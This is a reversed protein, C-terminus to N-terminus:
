RLSPDKIPRDVIGSDWRNWWDPARVRALMEKRRQQEVATTDYYDSVPKWLGWLCGVFFAFKGFRLLVAGAGGAFLGPEPTNLIAEIALIFLVLLGLFGFLIRLSGLSNEMWVHNRYEILRKKDVSGANSSILHFIARLIWGSNALLILILIVSTIPLLAPLAAKILDSANRGDRNELLDGQTILWVFLIAFLVQATVRVESKM